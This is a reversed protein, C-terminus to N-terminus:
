GRSDAMKDNKLIKYYGRCCSNFFFNKKYVVVRFHSQLYLYLWPGLQRVYIHQVNISMGYIPGKQINQSGM